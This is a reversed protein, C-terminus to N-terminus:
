SDDQNITKSIAASDSERQKINIVRVVSIVLFPSKSLVSKPFIFYIRRDCYQSKSSDYRYKYNMLRLIYIYKYQFFITM